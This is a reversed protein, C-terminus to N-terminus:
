SRTAKISFMLPIGGDVRDYRWLGDSGQTLFPRQQYTCYPFEHLYELHLGAATLSNVIESLSHPWEYCVRKVGPEPGGYSGSEYRFRGAPLEAQRM